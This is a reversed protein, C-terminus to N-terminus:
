DEDLLLVIPKPSESHDAGNELLLNIMDSRERMFAISLVTRGDRQLIACTYAHLVDNAAPLSVDRENIDNGDMISRQVQEYDGTHAYIHANITGVHWCCCPSDFSVDATQLLSTAPTDSM